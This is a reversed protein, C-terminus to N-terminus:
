GKRAAVTLENELDAKESAKYKRNPCVNVTVCPFIWPHVNSLGCCVPTCPGRQVCAPHLRPRSQTYGCLVGHRRPDM